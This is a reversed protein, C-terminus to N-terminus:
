SETRAPSSPQGRGRAIARVDAVPGLHRLKEPNIVSRVTQVVGDLIDLSFVNIVGGEPDFLIAGPQGNIQTPDIRIHFERIQRSLGAFLQAVRTAGVIATAWQPANGGGDGYVAVDAALLAVLGPMDGDTVAAFFRTALEDRAKRSADFRPRESQVNRRARSAIQRCNVESKDVITAIEDYEYGFVDHLLFVARETPSLRDLVLLFAMSLTEAEEAMVAPDTFGLDRDTVLPEPLWEGVYTERRVRASRLEDICLRTVVASLWSKPSDIHGGDRLAGEYRLFADQVADEAESISSLMRYAISFLLPRLSEFTEPELM